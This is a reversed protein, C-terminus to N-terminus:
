RAGAFAVFGDRHRLVPTEEFPVMELVATRRVQFAMVFAPAKPCPQITCTTGHFGGDFTVEIPAGCGCYCEYTATTTM